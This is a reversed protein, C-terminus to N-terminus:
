LKFDKLEMNSNSQNTVWLDPQSTFTQNFVEKLRERLTLIEDGDEPLKELLKQTWEFFSHDQKARSIALAMKRIETKLAELLKEGLEARVKLIKLSQEQVEPVFKLNKILRAPLVKLVETRLHFPCQLEIASDAVGEQNLRGALQVKEALGNEALIEAIVEQYIGNQGSDPLKEFYLLENSIHTGPVAGRYVLSTELVKTINRYNYFCKHPKGDSTSYTKFPIHECKRIDNRCVSCEPFEFIFGISCEKYIGGDINQKLTQAESSKKLWYFWVKVWQSNEKQVIEAKFNRGIPLKEKSHGIMVPSDILLRAIKKHEEAPFRGGYANVQDSLLFMARIYVEDRTVPVPPKIQLNILAVLEDTPDIEKEALEAILNGLLESM